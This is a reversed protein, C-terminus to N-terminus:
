VWLKEGKNIFRESLGSSRGCWEDFDIYGEDKLFSLTRIIGIRIGISFFMGGTCVVLVLWQAENINFTM